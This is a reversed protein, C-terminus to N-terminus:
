GKMIKELQSLSKRLSSDLWYPGVQFTIGGLLFPNVKTEIKLSSEVPFIKHILSDLHERLEQSLPRATTVIAKIIHSQGELFILIEKLMFELKNLRDHLAVTEVFRIVLPHLGVAKLLRSWIEKKREGLILPNKDLTKLLPVDELLELIKQVSLLLEEKQFNKSAKCFASIYKSEIIHSMGSGGRELVSAM